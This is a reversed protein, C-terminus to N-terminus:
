RFGPSMNDAGAVRRVIEACVADLFTDFATASATIDGADSNTGLWPIVLAFTKDKGVAARLPRTNARNIYSRVDPYGTQHGHYYLILSITPDQMFGDPIFIATDHSSGDPAGISSYYTSGGDAIERSYDM